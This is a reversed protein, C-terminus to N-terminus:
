SALPADYAIADRYVKMFLQPLELGNVVDVGVEYVFGGCVDILPESKCSYKGHGGVVVRIPDYLRRCGRKLKKIFHKPVGLGILYRELSRLALEVFPKVLLLGEYLELYGEVGMVHIRLTRRPRGGRREGRESRAILTSRAFLTSRTFLAPKAVLARPSLNEKVGGMVGGMSSEIEDVRLVDPSVDVVREYIGRDIKRLFGRKVLKQIADHVRKNAHAYRLKLSYAVVIDSATFKQCKSAYLLVLRQLRGLRVAPKRREQRNGRHPKGGSPQPPSSPLKYAGACLSSNAGM